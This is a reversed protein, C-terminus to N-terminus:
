SCALQPMAKAVQVQLQAKRVVLTQHAYWLGAVSFLMNLLTALVLMLTIM